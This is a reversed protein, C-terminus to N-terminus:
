IREIFIVELSPRFICPPMIFTICTDEIENWKLRVNLPFDENLLDLDSNNPINGFSFITDGIEIIYGSCGCTGSNTGTIIGRDLLDPQQDCSNFVALSAILIVLLTKIQM